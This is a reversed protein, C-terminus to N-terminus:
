FLKTFLIYKKFTVQAENCEDLNKLFILRIRSGDGNVDDWFDIYSNHFVM